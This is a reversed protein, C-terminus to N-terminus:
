KPLNNKMWLISPQVTFGLHLNVQLMAANCSDSWSRVHTYGQAKAWQLVRVKMARAIGQDRYAPLVGTYGYSLETADGILAHSHGIFKEGAVAVCFADPHLQPNQWFTGQWEAFAPFTSQAQTATHQHLHLAYLKANRAPDAILEHWTCLDIGLAKMRQWDAAFHVPDFTALDLQMECERMVEVFGKEALFRVARPLDTRVGTELCCPKYPTLAALVQAYLRKGIGEGQHQPLVHLWINFRNPDEAPASQAYSAAGIIEQTATVAVLKGAITTVSRQQDGFHLDAVTLGYDATARWGVDVITPYDAPTASRINVKM